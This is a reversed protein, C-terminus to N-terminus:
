AGAESLVLYEAAQDATLNQQLRHKLDVVPGSRRAVGLAVLPDTPSGTLPFAPFDPLHQRLATLPDDAPTTIALLAYFSRLLELNSVEVSYLPDDADPLRYGSLWQELRQM